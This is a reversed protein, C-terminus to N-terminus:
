VLVINKDTFDSGKGRLMHSTCKSCEAPRLGHVLAANLGATLFTHGAQGLLVLSFFFRQERKEEGQPGAPSVQNVVHVLFYFNAEQFSM